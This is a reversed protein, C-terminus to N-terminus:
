ISKITRKVSKRRRGLEIWMYWVLQSKPGRTCSNTLPCTTQRLQLLQLQAAPEGSSSARATAQGLWVLSCTKEMGRSLEGETRWIAAIWM